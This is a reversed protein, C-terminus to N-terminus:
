RRLSGQGNLLGNAKATVDSVDNKLVVIYENNIPRGGAQNSRVAVSESSMRSEPASLPESCAGVFLSLAGLLALPRVGSANGRKRISSLMRSRRFENPLGVPRAHPM